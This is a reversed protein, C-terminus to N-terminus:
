KVDTTNTILSCKSKILIDMPIQKGNKKLDDLAEM